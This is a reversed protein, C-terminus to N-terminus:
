APAVASVHGGVVRWEAATVAGERAWIRTYRYTGAVTPGGAVDVVLDTLLATVAVTLGVRRICLERPVHARIRVAGAAHAALDEAKTALRGDPGTFLLGDALLADLAAVDAALQAARLRAELAVIEPDPPGVRVASLIAVAEADAPM